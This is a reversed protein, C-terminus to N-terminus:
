ACPGVTSGRSIARFSRKTRAPLFYRFSRFRIRGGFSAYTAKFEPSSAMSMVKGEFTVTEGIRTAAEDVTLVTQALGWGASLLGLLVLGRLVGRTAMM